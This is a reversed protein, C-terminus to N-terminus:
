RYLSTTSGDDTPHKNVNNKIHGMMGHAVLAWVPLLTATHM